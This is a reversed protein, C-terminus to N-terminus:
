FTVDYTLLLNRGTEPRFFSVNTFEAYLVDTFNLVALGLRQTHLGRRFVTVGARANHVLFAPLTAGVPNTGPLVDKRDGNGRLEYEAFFRDRPDDFRLAARYSTSFTEGVPNSPDLVNESDLHTFAVSLSTGAPGRVQGSLEVGRFRLKDVNTNQYEPLGNVSDGTAAIRIGDRIDNQFVFGEAYVRGSRVRLGLDVNFSTEATLDPNPSQYAIGEPTVGNFFREVLNPSRFARGVTGVLSVAESVRYIGSAAGVVTQDISTVTPATVNPTPETAARVYQYRAGLIVSFRSAVALDGQAFVGASTYTGNPVSPVSDVSPPIPGMNVFATTNVDTNESRDRFADVGYTLALAPTALKKAEVRAGLTRLDTWNRQDIDIGAGPPGPIPIFVDLDLKRENDQVYGLVELRDALVSGLSTGRYGFGVKTFAQAPYTIRITPDGPAYEAPDIYGFGATDADYRDLRAFVEHNDALRYGLYADVSWDSGGTDNVRTPDALTINGFTGAPADYDRSGRVAGGVQVGWRGFRGAANAYLREQDDAGSYRVGGSGHLGATEPSRTIVNVVGGIADSGYLVSAPGRVVEVRDVAAVDILAPVEGFDQQRRTNNLRQGDAVLLIRQGRQGRIVPRVQNLGVGSVDLGARGRFLDAVSNPARGRIATRDFVDVPVPTLFVDTPSRTATVAIPTLYVTDRSAATDPRTQAALPTALALALLLSRSRTM